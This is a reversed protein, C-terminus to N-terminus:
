VEFDTKMHNSDADTIFTCKNISTMELLKEQLNQYYYNSFDAKLEDNAMRRRKEQVGDTCLVIGLAGILLLAIM